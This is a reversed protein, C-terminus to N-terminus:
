GPGPGQSVSQAAVSRPFQPRGHGLEYYRSGCLRRACPMVTGVPLRRAAAREARFRLHPWCRLPAAWGPRSADQGAGPRRCYKPPPPVHRLKALAGRQPRPPRRNSDPQGSRHHTKGRGPRPEPSSRGPPQACHAPSRTFPPGSSAPADDDPQLAAQDARQTRSASAAPEFGALGVQYLRRSLLCPPVAARLLPSEREVRPDGPPWPRRM